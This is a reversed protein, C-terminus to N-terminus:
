YAGVMMFTPECEGARKNPQKSQHFGPNGEDQFHELVAM